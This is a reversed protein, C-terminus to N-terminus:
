SAVQVQYAVSWGDDVQASDVIVVVYAGNEWAFGSDNSYGAEALLEPARNASAEDPAVITVIWAAGDSVSIASEIRGEVLPVADVPFDAPLEGAEFEIGDGSEEVLEEVTPDGGDDVGAPTPPGAFCATLALTMPIVGFGILWPRISTRM